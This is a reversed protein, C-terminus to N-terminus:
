ALFLTNREHEKQDAMSYRSENILAFFCYGKNEETLIQNNLSNINIWHNVVVHDEEELRKCGGGWGHHTRYSNIVM